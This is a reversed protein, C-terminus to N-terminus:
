SKFAENFHKDIIDQGVYQMVKVADSFFPRPSTAKSKKTFIIKGNIKFKLYKKKVPVVVGRGNNIFSAYKKNNILSLKTCSSNIKFNTSLKLKNGKFGHYGLVSKLGMEGIKWLAQKLALKYKAKKSKLVSAKVKM